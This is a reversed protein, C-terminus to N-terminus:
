VYTREDIRLPFVIVKRGARYYIGEARFFLVIFFCIKAERRALPNAFKFLYYCKRRSFEVDLIKWLFEKFEPRRAKMGAAPRVFQEGLRGHFNVGLKNM